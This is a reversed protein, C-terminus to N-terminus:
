EHRQLLLAEDVVLQLVLQFSVVVAGDVEDELHLVLLHQQLHLDALGEKVEHDGDQLAVALEQQGDGARRGDPGGIDVVEKIALNARKRGIVDASMGGFCM